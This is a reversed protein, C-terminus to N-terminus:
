KLINMSYNLFFMLYRSRDNSRKHKKTEKVKPKKKKVNRDHSKKRLKQKSRSRSRRSLPYEAEPTVSKHRLRPPSISFSRSHSPSVSRKRNNSRTRYRSYGPSKAARRGGSRDAANSYKQRFNPSVSRSGSRRRKPTRSRSRSTSRHRKDSIVHRVSYRPLEKKKNDFRRFPARAPSKRRVPSRTSHQFPKKTIKDRYNRERTNKTIKKFNSSKSDKKPPEKRLQEDEEDSIDSVGEIPIACTISKSPSSQEPQEPENQLPLSDSAAEEDQPEPSINALGNTDSIPHNEDLCPTFSREPESM